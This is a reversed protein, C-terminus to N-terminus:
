YWFGVIEKDLFHVFGEPGMMEKEFPLEQDFDSWLDVDFGFVTPEHHADKKSMSYWSEGCGTLPDWIIGLRKARYNVDFTTEAEVVVFRSIGKSEKFRYPAIQYFTYYEM